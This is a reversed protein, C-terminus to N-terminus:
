YVKNLNPGGREGSGGALTEDIGSGISRIDHPDEALKPELSMDGGVSAPSIGPLV